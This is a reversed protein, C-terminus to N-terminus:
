VSGFVKVWSLFDVIVIFSERWFKKKKLLIIIKISLILWDILLWQEKNVIDYICYSIEEVWVRDIVYSFAERVLIHATSNAARKVHEVRWSRLKGLGEKIGDILHGM